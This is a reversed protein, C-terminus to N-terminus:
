NSAPLHEDAYRRLATACAAASRSWDGWEGCEGSKHDRGEFADLREYFEQDDVGVIGFWAGDEDRQGLFHAIWGLACGPTGCHKARPVDLSMFDFEGPFQEIHDAALLVANRIENSM